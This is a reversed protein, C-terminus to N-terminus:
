ADSLMMMSWDLFEREALRTREDLLEWHRRKAEARMETMPENGLALWTSFSSHWMFQIPASDITDPEYQIFNGRLLM